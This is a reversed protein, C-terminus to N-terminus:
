LFFNHFLFNELFSVKRTSPINEHDLKILLNIISKLTASRKENLLERLNKQNSFHFWTFKKSLIIGIKPTIAIANTIQNILWNIKSKLTAFINRFKEDQTRFKWSSKLWDTSDQKSKKNNNKYEEFCYFRHFLGHFTQLFFFRKM